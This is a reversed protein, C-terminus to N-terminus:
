FSSSFRAATAFDTQEAMVIEHPALVIGNIIARNGSGIVELGRDALKRHFSIQTIPREGRSDSWQKYRRYLANVNISDGAITEEEMFAGIRDENKRYIEHANKVVTCMELPNEQSYTSALYKVAGEVIWALVAPLAGDPDALYKKLGPDPKAPKNTLPVPLLRRWMAEDTIIPRHNTSIWLKGTSTFQIPKEGPSRGQITGSGTLKKVQNEKIRENEPLEDVWIMRRGRLEAMHYEDTNSIKDGLALVNTDLAWAHQAKGLAEFITEIFTNKGSGPPGYIIFVVDQNNLGTATYGVAKQIWNIYEQDGNFAENLFNTWRVNTLGQTYSIPSVRTIHSEIDGSQLAGTRLDVVGNRVGLLYPDKDWEEIDMTIRPDTTAQEITSNIRANSKASNAWKVLEAGRPDDASKLEAVERAIVTSVSKAIERIQTMQGDPKWYNGNWVFWGVNDTHRITSGFSDVLRRGNGVDTLSRGGPRGGAEASIADPDKPLDLNGGSTIDKLSRGKAALSAVQDGVANASNFVELSDEDVVEATYSYNFSTSPSPAKVFNQEAKKAWEMGNEPIYDKLGDWWKEWVPNNSVFEIARRTHMLLGNSGEVDLPPRVMEANFKLMLAEVSTKGATDTGFKNALACALQYLGVARGGEDIGEQLIKDIDLKNGTNGFNLDRLFEWDSTEYNSGSYGGPRRLTKARIVNLLEEPAEAIEMEWPAHGPKWEYCHGTSHKSPAVLIYGNHKIDIGDLGQAKFNGIFKENPNCKYILHRGRMPGTRTSYEGTIAEVTKPLNGNAREELKILSEHGNHRPDIDIVFIGSDKAYIGINYDPNETWWNQIISLNTTADKQGNASAPHKANEKPDKHTKGCTCMGNKDIGHVPLVHWGNQAYWKAGPALRGEASEWGAVLVIEL